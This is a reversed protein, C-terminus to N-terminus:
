IVEYITVLDTINEGTLPVEGTISEEFVDGAELFIGIGVGASIWIKGVNDSNAVIVIKKRSLNSGLTVTGIIMQTEPLPNITSYPTITAVVNGGGEKYAGAGAIIDLELIDNTPNHFTVKSFTATTKIESKERLEVTAVNRGDIEALAEIKIGVSGASSYVVNIYDGKIDRRASSNAPVTIPYTRIM